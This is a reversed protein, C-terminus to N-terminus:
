LKQDHTETMATQPRHGTHGHPSLDLPPTRLDTPLPPLLRRRAPLGGVSGGAQHEMLVPCLPEEARKMMKRQERDADYKNISLLSLSTLIVNLLILAVVNPVTHLLREVLSPERESFRPMDQLNVPQRSLTRYHIIGAHPSEPDKQDRELIFKDLAHVYQKLQGITRTRLM